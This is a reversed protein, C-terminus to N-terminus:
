MMCLFNMAAPQIATECDVAIDVPLRALERLNIKAPAEGTSAAIATNIALEVVGIVDDWESERM